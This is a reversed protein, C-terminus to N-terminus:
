VHEEWGIEQSTSLFDFDFGPILVCTLDTSLTYSAKKGRNKAGKGVESNLENGM